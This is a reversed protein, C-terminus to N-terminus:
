KNKLSDNILAVSLIMGTICLAGLAEAFILKLVIM